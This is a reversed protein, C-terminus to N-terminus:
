VRNAMSPDGPGSRIWPVGTEVKRESGQRERCALGAPWQAGCLSATEVKGARLNCAHGVLRPKKVSVTRPISSCDEHGSGKPQNM